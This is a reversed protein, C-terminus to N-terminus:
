KGGQMVLTLQGHDPLSPDNDMRAAQAPGIPIAGRHLYAKTHTGQPQFEEATVTLVGAVSRAAQYIPSLYVTQGLVFRGPAFFAPRGGPLTGSGLVTLLSQRVDSQFYSPDVCVALKIELSVYDPGEIKIDQGALRYRNVYRTLSTRLASSLDRGSAPEATIFATYWSGTWRLTAAADEVQPSAKTVNDYDTMTVAREQTLFAQPARRRIQDATEPGVGGTAPLPNICSVVSPDAAFQTLTGAGVNGATGNGVRYTAKFATGSAPFLGNTSDGFRLHATGDTDVEVVFATDLPGSALLNPVASWNVPPHGAFTSALSISPVAQAADYSMLESASLTPNPQDEFSWVTIPSSPVNVQAEADDLQLGTFQEAIVPVQVGVGGDPPQYVLVLNFRDPKSIDGQALVGFLPPWSAPNTPQLTLYPTHSASADDLVVPGSVPLMAPAVPFTAPWNAPPAYGAPVFVFQSTGNIRTTVFDASGPTPSLDTFQELVVAAPMGPPANGGPCFEVALDINGNAAANPTVRIGFYQPWSSPDKATVTLATFGAGDSLTITGQTVLAVAAPTVPTGALPLPVAQTVPGEALRPWYRVPLAKPAAPNCGNGAAAPIFLRPEPVDSLDAEPMTLGQDALVVNGLVTSVQPLTQLTGTKDRFTSSLCVPFPLADDASWRIETVPTPQQAASVIPKGTGQEFLPDVLLKGQGDTTTVATLRVACRHRLDADAAAGTQPGLMEQFILVDGVQLKDFTGLLTAETAGRPLCCDTDGWTYFQMQGPNHEVFLNVDHMPQFAIVGALLAAAENGAGVKLNAPMGPAATYFRTVTHDLTVPANVTVCVWARANCGEHVPYDVLLAHRRLSVRSRATLLYAETAVADQQYSLQDGVYALVEALMVGIDAESAGTWNPLLQNLRDLLVTRFSGYDKALYNIPPPAPLVPPCDPVAPACDFDPGCEVKFSFEVEALLPDFGTLAETVTFPDQAAEEAQNVLRLCYPSFDGAVSTRVVLTNAADALSTFYAAETALAQPPPASAPAVWAATIGTISEGGTIYISAPGLGAPVPKLCHVLLTQQRPSGAPAERDLVELYDIGNLAPNGLVAARRHENCCAYIM